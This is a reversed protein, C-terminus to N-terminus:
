FSRALVLAPAQEPAVAPLPARTAPGRRGLAQNIAWETRRAAAARHDARHGPGAVAPIVPLWTVRVTQPGSRLIRWLSSVLDDAGTLGAPPAGYSLAVPSVVVATDVAAQFAARSFPEGGRGPHVDPFVLVRHGSRLAAGVQQVAASLDRSVGPRYLLAGFRSAMPGISRQLASEDVLPVVPGAAALVLVDLWCVHNAVVLSPGSRPGGSSQVRTGLARLLIRSFGQLALTGRRAGAHGPLTALVRVVLAGAVLTLAVFVGRGAARLVTRAPRPPSTPGSPPPAALQGLLRASFWGSSSPTPNTLASRVM